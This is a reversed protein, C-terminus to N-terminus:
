ASTQPALAAKIREEPSGDQNFYWIVSLYRYSQSAFPESIAKFLKRMTDFADIVDLFQSTYGLLAAIGTAIAVSPRSGVYRTISDHPSKPKNPDQITAGEVYEGFASYKTQEDFKANLRSPTGNSMQQGLELSRM